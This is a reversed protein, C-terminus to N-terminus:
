GPERPRPAPQVRLVDHHVSDPHHNRQARDEGIPPHWEATNPHHRTVQTLTSWRGTRKLRRFLLKETWPSASTTTWHETGPMWLRDFGVAAAKGDTIAVAVPAGITIWRYQAVLGDNRAWALTPKSDVLFDGFNGTLTVKSMGARVDIIATLSDVPQGNLPSVPLLRPSSPMSKAWTEQLSETPMAFRGVTFSKFSDAVDATLNVPIPVWVSLSSGLQVANPYSAM